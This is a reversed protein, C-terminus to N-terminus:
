ILSPMKQVGMLSQGNDVKITVFLRCVCNSIQTHFSNKKYCKISSPISIEKLFNQKNSPNAMLQPKATILLNRPITGHKLHM